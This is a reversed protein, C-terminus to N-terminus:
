LTQSRVGEFFANEDEKKKAQFCSPEASGVLPARHRPLSPSLPERKKM